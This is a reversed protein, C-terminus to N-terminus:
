ALRPYGLSPPPLRAARPQDGSDGLDCTMAPIPFAFGL